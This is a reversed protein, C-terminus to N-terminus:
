RGRGINASHLCIWRITSLHKGTGNPLRLCESSNTLTRDGDRRPLARPSGAEMLFAEIGPGGIVVVHVDGASSNRFGHLLANSPILAMEGSTLPLFEAKGDSARMVELTGKLVLFVEVDPHYHLPVFADPPLTAEGIFFTKLTERSSVKLRTVTGLLSLLDGDGTGIHHV